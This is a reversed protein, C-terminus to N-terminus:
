THPFIWLSNMEFCFDSRLHFQEIISQFVIRVKWWRLNENDPAASSLLIRSHASLKFRRCTLSMRAGSKGFQETYIQAFYKESVIYPVQKRARLTSFKHCYRGLIERTAPLFKRRSSIEGPFRSHRSRTQNRISMEMPVSVFVWIYRRCVRRKQM